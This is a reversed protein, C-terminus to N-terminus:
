SNTLSPMWDFSKLIGSLAWSFSCSVSWRIMLSPEPPSMQMMIQPRRPLTPATPPAAGRRWCSARTSSAGAGPGRVSSPRGSRALPPGVHKPPHGRSSHPRRSGLVPPAFPHHPSPPDRESPKFRATWDLAEADPELTHSGLRIPGFAGIGDGSKPALSAPKRPLGAM